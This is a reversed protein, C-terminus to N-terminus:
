VINSLEMFEWLIIVAIVSHSCFERLHCCDLSGFSGWSVLIELSYWIGLM